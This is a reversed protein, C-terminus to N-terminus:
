QFNEMQYADKATMSKINKKYLTVTFTQSIIKLM